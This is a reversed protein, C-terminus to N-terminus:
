DRSSGPKKRRPEEGKYGAKQARRHCCFMFVQAVPVSQAYFGTKKAQEIINVMDSSRGAAFAAKVLQEKQHYPLGQRSDRLGELLAFVNEWSPDDNSELLLKLIDKCARTLSLRNQPDLPNLKIEEDDGITTTVGPENTLISQRTPRFV